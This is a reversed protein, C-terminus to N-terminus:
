RAETYELKKIERSKVAIADKACRDLLDIQLRLQEKRSRQVRLEELAKKYAKIAADQANYSEKIRACLKEKEVALRKFELETVRVNYQQGRQLCESCKELYVYVKCM